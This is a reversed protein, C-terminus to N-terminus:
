KLIFSEIQDIDIEIVSDKKEKKPIKYKGKWKKLCKRCFASDACNKCIEKRFNKVSKKNLKKILKVREEASLHNNDFLGYTEIENFRYFKESSQKSETNPQSNKHETAPNRLYLDAEKQRLRNEVEYKWARIRKRLSPKNKKFYNKPM